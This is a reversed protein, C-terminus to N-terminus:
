ITKIEKFGDFIPNSVYEEYLYCPVHLVCSNKESFGAFIGKDIGTQEPSLEMYIDSLKNCNFFVANEIISVSSPIHIEKIHSNIFSQHCIKELGDNLFLVRIQSYSMSGHEIVRTSKPTTYVGQRKAPFSILLEGSKNYVIGDISKYKANSEDIRVDGGFPGNYMNVNAPIYLEKIGSCWFASEGIKEVSDPIIIDTLKWCGAFAGVEIKKLNRPLKVDELNHCSDFAYSGIFKLSDPLIIEKLNECGCFANFGINIMGSPFTISELESNKFAEKGIYLVGNPIIIDKPKPIGWLIKGDNSVKLHFEDNDEGAFLIDLKEDNNCEKYSFTSQLLSLIENVINEQFGFQSVLRHSIANIHNKCKDEDVVNGIFEPYLCEKYFEEMMGENIMNKLIYKFAPEDKFAGFDNLANVFTDNSIFSLMSMKITETLAKQFKNESEM